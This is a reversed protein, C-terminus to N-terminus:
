CKINLYHQSGTAFLFQKLLTLKCLVLQEYQAYIHIKGGDEQVLAPALVTLVTSFLGKLNKVLEMRMRM